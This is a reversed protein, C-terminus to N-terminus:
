PAASKNKFIFIRLYIRNLFYNKLFNNKKNKKCLKLKVFLLGCFIQLCYKRDENKPARIKISMRMCLYEAFRVAFELDWETTRLKKLLKEESWGTLEVLDKGALENIQIYNM